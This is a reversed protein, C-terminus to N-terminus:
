NKQVAWLQFLSVEKKAAVCDMQFADMNVMNIQVRAFNMLFKVISGVEALQAFVNIYRIPTNYVLYYLTHANLLVMEPGAMM